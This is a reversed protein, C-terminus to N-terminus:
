EGSGNITTWPRRGRQDQTWVVRWGDARRYLEAAGGRAFDDGTLLLTKACAAPPAAVKARLAVVDSAECLAALNAPTRVSYANALRVPLPRTPACVYRACDFGAQGEALGRRRMWLDLAFRRVDPRTPIALGHDRIAAAGGDSSIWVDPAPPRPWLNVALAM